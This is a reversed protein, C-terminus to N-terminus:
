PMPIFAPSWGIGFVPNDSTLGFFFSPHQQDSDTIKIFIALITLDTMNM